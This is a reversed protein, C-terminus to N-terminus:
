YNKHKNELPSKTHLLVLYVDSYSPNFKIHM